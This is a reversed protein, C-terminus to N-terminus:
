GFLPSKDGEDQFFGSQAAMAGSVEREYVSPVFVTDSSDSYQLIILSM